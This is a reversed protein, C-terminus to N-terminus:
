QPRSVCDDGRASWNRIVGNQDTILRLECTKVYSQGGYVEGGTTKSPTTTAFAVNGHVQVTTYEPTTRTPMVIRPTTYTTRNVFTYVARGDPLQYESEPPGYNAILDSISRGMLSNVQREFEERTELPACATLAIAAIILLRM